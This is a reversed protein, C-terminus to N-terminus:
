RTVAAPRPYVPRSSQGDTDTAHVEVARRELLTAWGAGGVLGLLGCLGLVLPAPPFITPTALVPAELVSIAVGLRGAALSQDLLQMQKIQAVVSDHM